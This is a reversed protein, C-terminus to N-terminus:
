RSSLFRQMEVLKDTNLLDVGADSLEKWGAANDPAAWFRVRRGQAHARAVIARLKAREDDPLSGTGRWKFHRIWNDSILPVLSAPPNTELDPLRGDLAAFRVTEARIAAEARNGSIVVTVANPHIRGAEFRTLVDAFSGLVERLVAWTAAAESKVDIMLTFPPAGKVPNAKAFARLPDLYLRQLTKGATADQRDHAVLLSGDVLWIDSEVSRFGHEIADALPRPHLYDNHAHAGAPPEAAFTRAAVALALSVPALISRM